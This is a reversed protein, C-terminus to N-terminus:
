MKIKDKFVKQAARFVSDGFWGMMFASAPTLPLLSQLLDSGFFILGLNALLSFIGSFVSMQWDWVKKAKKATYFKYYFRLFVGFTMAIIIMWNIEM